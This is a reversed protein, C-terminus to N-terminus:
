QRRSCHIHTHHISGSSFSLVETHDPSANIQENQIDALESSGPFDMGYVVYDLWYKTATREDYGEYEGINMSLGRFLNKNSGVADQANARYAGLVFNDPIAPAGANSCIILQACVAWQHNACTRFWLCRVCGRPDIYAKPLFFLYLNFRKQQEESLSCPVGQGLLTPANDELMEAALTQKMGLHGKKYEKEQEDSDEYGFFQNASEWLPKVIDIIRATQIRLTVLSTISEKPKACVDKVAKRLMTQFPEDLIKCCDNFLPSNPDHYKRILNTLDMDDGNVALSQLEKSWRLISLHGDVNFQWAYDIHIYVPFLSVGQERKREKERERKRECM